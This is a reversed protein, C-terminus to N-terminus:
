IYCTNALNKGITNLRPPNSSPFRCKEFYNLEIIVYHFSFFKTLLKTSKFIHPSNNIIGLKM